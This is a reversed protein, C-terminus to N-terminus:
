QFVCIFFGTELFLSHNMFFLVQPQDRVETCLACVHVGVRMCIHVYVCVCFFTM